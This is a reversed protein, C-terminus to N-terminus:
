DVYGHRQSRQQWPKYSQNSYWVGDEETGRMKNVIHHRGDPYLIAFKNGPGIANELGKLNEEVNEFTLARGFKEVFLATDSKGTGYVSGTGVLTGNHILAGIGGEIVFPHTNEVSRDGQSRIRFHILFPSDSFMFEAEQYADWFDKWTTYGKSVEVKGDKIFAFGGGDSNHVWGSHLYDEKMEVGAPKFIALCM